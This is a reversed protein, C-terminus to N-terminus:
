RWTNRQWTKNLQAKRLTEMYRNWVLDIYIASQFQIIFHISHFDSAYENFNKVVAPKLMHGIVAGDIIVTSIM